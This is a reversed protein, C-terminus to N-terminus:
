RAGCERLNFDKLVPVIEAACFLREPGVFLMIIGVALQQPGDAEWPEM